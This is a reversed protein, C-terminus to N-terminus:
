LHSFNIPIRADRNGGLLLVTAECRTDEERCKIISKIWYHYDLGSKFSSDSKVDFWAEGELKTHRNNAFPLSYIHHSDSNLMSITGDPLKFSIRSGMPAYIDCTGEQDTVTRFRGSMYSYILFGAVLLPLLLIAATKMYVRVLKQLPKQKKWTKDKRIIHHIRDLLQNLNVEPSSDGKLMLEFDKNLCSRFYLNNEENLFLSEVYKKENDDAVGKIYHEKKEFDEQKM